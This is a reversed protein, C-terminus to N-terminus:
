EFYTIITNIAESVNETRVSLDCLKENRLEQEMSTCRISKEEPSLMDKKIIELFMSERSQKCFVLTTPYLRKLMMAGAMDVACVVNKNDALLTEIESKRYSYIRRGYITKAACDNCEDCEGEISTVRTAFGNSDLEKAVLNKKAGTPGILAIITPQKAVTKGEISSEKIQKVLLLFDEYSNVSLVGSLDKNWPKRMLVPYDAGSKLINHPGDDLTIDFKVLNKAFGMIINSEPIEPFDEKIQQFRFSMFRGEVATIIFVEDTKMLENIFAKAKPYVKQALFVREDKYYPSVDNIAQSGGFGWCTIDQASYSTGKEKNCLGCAISVFPALVDDYDIGIKM